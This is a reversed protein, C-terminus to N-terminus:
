FNISRFEAVLLPYLGRIIIFYRITFSIPISIYIASNPNSVLVLAVNVIKVGVYLQGRLVSVVTKLIYIVLPIIDLDV